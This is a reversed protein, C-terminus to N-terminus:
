NQARSSLKDHSSEKRTAYKKSQRASKDEPAHYLQVCVHWVKFPLGSALHLHQSNFAFPGFRSCPRTVLDPMDLTLFHNHWSAMLAVANPRRLYAILGGYSTGSLDKGAVYRTSLQLYGERLKAVSEFKKAEGIWKYGLRINEVVIDVNGGSNKQDCQYGKGYLIGILRMTTADESETEFFQPTKEIHVVADCIDNYLSELFESFNRVKYRDLFGKVMPDVQAYTEINALSFGSEIM